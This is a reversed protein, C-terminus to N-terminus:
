EQYIIQERYTWVDSYFWNVLLWIKRLKFLAVRDNTYSLYRRCIDGCFRCSQCFIRKWSPGWWQWYGMPTWWAQDSVFIEPLAVFVHLSISLSELVTKITLTQPNFDFNFSSSNLDFLYRFNHHRCIQETTYLDHWFIRRYEFGVFYACTVEHVPVIGVEGHRVLVVVHDPM